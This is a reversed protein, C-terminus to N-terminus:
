GAIRWASFAVAVTGVMLLLLPLERKFFRTRANTYFAERQLEEAPCLRQEYTSIVRDGPAKVSERYPWQAAPISPNRTLTM